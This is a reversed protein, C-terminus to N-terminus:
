VVKSYDIIAVDQSLDKSLLVVEELRASVEDSFMIEGCLPCEFCPVARVVILRGKYDVTYTTTSALRNENFCHSCM